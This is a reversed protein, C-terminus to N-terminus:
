NKKKESCFTFLFICFSSHPNFQIPSLTDDNGRQYRAQKREYSVGYFCALSTNYGYMTVVHICAFFSFWSLLNRMMLVNLNLKLKKKQKLCIFDSSSFAAFDLSSNPLHTDLRIVKLTSVCVQFTM